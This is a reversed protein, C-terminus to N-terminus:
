ECVIKSLTLCFNPSYLVSFFTDDLQLLHIMKVHFSSLFGAVSLAFSKKIGALYDATQRFTSETFSNLQGFSSVFAFRFFVFYSCVYPHM